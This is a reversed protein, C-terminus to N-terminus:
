RDCLVEGGLSADGGGFDPFEHVYVLGAGAEILVRYSNKDSRLIYDFDTKFQDMGKLSLGKLFEGQRFECFQWGDDSIKEFVPNEIYMYVLGNSEFNETLVGLGYNGNVHLFSFYNNISILALASAFVSIVVKISTYMM